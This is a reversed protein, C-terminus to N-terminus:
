WWRGSIAFSDRKEEQLVMTKVTYQISHQFFLCDNQNRAEAMDM